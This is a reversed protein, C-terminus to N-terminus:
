LHLGGGHRDDPDAARAQRFAAVAGDRDGLEERIEGLAFWASAFRPAAEVAQAMIDAAALLDGRAWYHRAADFRRDAILDGSTIFLPQVQIAVTPNAFARSVDPLSYIAAIRGCSM